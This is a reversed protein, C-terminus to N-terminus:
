DPMTFFLRQGVMREQVHVEHRDQQGCLRGQWLVASDEGEVKWLDGKQLPVIARLDARRVGKQVSMENQIGKREKWGCTHM